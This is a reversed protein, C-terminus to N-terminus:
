YVPILVCVTQYRDSMRTEMVPNRLNGGRTGNDSGHALTSLTDSQGRAKSPPSTSTRPSKTRIGNQKAPPKLQKANGNAYTSSTTFQREFPNEGRDSRGDRSRLTGRVRGRGRVRSVERLGQPASM